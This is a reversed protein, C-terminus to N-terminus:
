EVLVSIRKVGTAVAEQAWGLVWDLGYGRAKVAVGQSGATIPVACLGLM